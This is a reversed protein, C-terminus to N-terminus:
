WSAEVAIEWKRCYSNKTQDIGDREVTDQIYEQHNKGVLIDEGELNLGVDDCNRALDHWGVIIKEDTGGLPLIKPVTCYM